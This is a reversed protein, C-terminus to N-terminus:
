PGLRSSSSNTVQRSARHASIQRNIENHIFPKLKGYWTHTNSEYMVEIPTPLEANALRRTIAQCIKRKAFDENSELAANIVKAVRPFENMLTRLRAKYTGLARALLSIRISRPQTLLYEVAREVAAMLEDSCLNNQESTQFSKKSREHITGLTRPLWDYLEEACDIPWCEDKAHILNGDKPWGAHDKEGSNRLASSKTGASNDLAQGLSSDLVRLAVAVAVPEVHLRWETIAQCWSTTPRDPPRVHFARLAEPTCRQLLRNQTKKVDPKGQYDLGSDIVAKTMEVVVRQRATSLDRERLLVSLDCALLLLLRESRDESNISRKAPTQGPGPPPVLEQSKRALGLPIRELHLEHIPCVFVGYLNHVRHWYSEGFQDYDQEVCCPCYAMGLARRERNIMRIRKSRLTANIRGRHLQDDSSRAQKLFAAYVPILTHQAFLTEDFALWSPADRRTVEPLPEFGIPDFVVNERGYFDRGVDTDYKYGALSKYRAFFSYMLEDPHPTPCFSITM